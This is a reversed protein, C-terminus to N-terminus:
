AINRSKKYEEITIFSAPNNEYETVGESLLIREEETLDTEVVYDDDALDALLPKLATLRKPPIRDIFAHLERRLAQQARTNM